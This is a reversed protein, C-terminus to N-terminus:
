AFNELYTQIKAMVKEPTGTFKRFKKDKKKHSLIQLTVSLKDGVEYFQKEGAPYISLMLNTSNHWYKVSELSEISAKIHISSCIRDSTEVSLFGLTEVERLSKAIKELKCGTECFYQIM